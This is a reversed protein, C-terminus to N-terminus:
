LPIDPAIAKPDDRIKDARKLIWQRERGLAIVYARDKQRVRGKDCHALNKQEHLRLHIPCSQSAGPQQLAWHPSYGFAECLTPQRNSRDVMSHLRALNAIWAEFSSIYSSATAHLDPLRMDVECGRYANRGAMRSMSMRESIECLEERRQLM